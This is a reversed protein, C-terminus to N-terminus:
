NESPLFLLYSKLKACAMGHGTTFKKQQWIKFNSPARPSEFISFFYELFMIEFIMDFLIIQVICLYFFFDNKELTSDIKTLLLNM